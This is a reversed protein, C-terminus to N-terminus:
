RRGPDGGGGQRKAIAQALEAKRMQSAGSIGLNRAREYLDDRTNSVADVGGYTAGEGRRRAAGTKTSRPDSPGKEKKPEWHDGVREFSRKLASYATRQAREGEGYTEIAGDHAKRWTRQAKAPSRKVTDPVRTRAGPM